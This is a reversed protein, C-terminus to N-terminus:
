GFDGHYKEPATPKHLKVLEEIDTATYGLHGLENRFLDEEVLGDEFGACLDLFHDDREQKSWHRFKSM